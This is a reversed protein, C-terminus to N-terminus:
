IVEPHMRSWPNFGNGCFNPMPPSTHMQNPSPVPLREFDGVGHQRRMNSARMIEPVMRGCALMLVRCLCSLLFFNWSMFLQCTEDKLVDSLCLFANCSFDFYAM